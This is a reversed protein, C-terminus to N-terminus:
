KRLIKKYTFYSTIGMGFIFLLLNFQKPNKNSAVVLDPIGIISDDDTNLQEMKLEDKLEQKLEMKLEQKLEDKLEQKLEMKLEQKLEVKLEQKLEVKLEQKLEVKLEMKLEQKLIDKLIDKIMDKLMDKLEQKIMVKLEQKLENISNNNIENHLENDPFVKNKGLSTALSFCQKEKPEDDILTEKIEPQPEKKKRTNTKKPKKDEM